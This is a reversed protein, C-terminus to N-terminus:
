NPFGGYIPHRSRYHNRGCDFIIGMMVSSIIEKKPNEKENNDYPLLVIKCKECRAAPMSQAYSWNEWSRWFGKKLTNLPVGHFITMGEDSISWRIRNHKGLLYGHILEGGCYSCRSLEINNMVDGYSNTLSM